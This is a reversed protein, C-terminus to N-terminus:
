NVQGSRELYDAMGEVNLERWSQYQGWDMYDDMMVSAKLEDMSQGAQLGALVAAKLDLMYQLADDLDAKTGVAGHGPAFIEFDLTRAKEIQGIWDDLNAGGFNRFPLRKPAAVDVIFAVNEPRIVAAMMDTGHGPGLDTLEISKGGIELTRAGSVRIDPAVGDIQDPANEHAVVTAGVHASGGSAHDGHSHSFILHTVEGGGIQGLNDNVWDGAGANIPDIRVVGEGTVVLLSNHFNNHMLYVDGTVPEISRDVDQAAAFPVTLCLVTAALIVSKM